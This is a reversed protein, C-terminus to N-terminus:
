LKNSDKNAKREKEKLIDSFYQELKANADQMFKQAQPDKDDAHYKIKREGPCDIEVEWLKREGFKTLIFYPKCYIEYKTNCGNQKRVELVYSSFSSCEGERSSRSGFFVEENNLPGDEHPLYTYDRYNIPKPLFYILGGFALAGATLLSVLGIKKPTKMKQVSKKFILLKYINRKTAVISNIVL